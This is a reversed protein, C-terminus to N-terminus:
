QMFKVMKDVGALHNTGSGLEGFIKKSGPGLLLIENVVFRMKRYWGGIGRKVFIVFGAFVPYEGIFLGCKVGM